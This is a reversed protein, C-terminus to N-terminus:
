RNFPNKIYERQCPRCLDFKFFKYVDDELEQPDTEAIEALLKNVNEEFNEGGNLFIRKEPPSGSAFVEIRVIYHGRNDHIRRGCMKCFVSKNSKDM